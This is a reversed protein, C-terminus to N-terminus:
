SDLDLFSSPFSAVKTSKQVTLGERLYTVRCKILLPKDQPRTPSGAAVAAAAGGPSSSVRLRQLVPPGGPLVDTASPPELQLQLYKPVAAEFRFQQLVTSSASAAFEATVECVGLGARRCKLLINLGEEDLVQVAAVGDPGVSAAATGPSAARATAAAAAPSPPSIAATLALPASSGEGAATVASAVPTAAAGTAASPSLPRLSSELLSPLPEGSSMSAPPSLTAPAAATAATTPLPNALDILGSFPDAAPTPAGATAAAPSAAASQQEAAKHNAESSSVSAGALLDALLDLGGASSSSSTNAAVPLPSSKSAPPSTSLGLLDDLELLQAGTTGNATRQQPATSVGPFSTEAAATAAAAEPEPPLDALDFYVEGIPREQQQVQQQQQQLPMRSFLAALDEPSWDPSQLLTVFETSRQQVELNSSTNFSQLLQLLRGRQEPLKVALKAMCTMLSEAVGSSGNAAAAAAAAGAAGAANNTGSQKGGRLAHCIQELTDVVDAATLALAAAAPDQQQHQQQQKSLLHSKDTATLMEGFEGVCYLATKALVPNSASGERLCFFLKHVAYSQLEPTKFVLLLLQNGTSDSLYNGALCLLKLTGDFQWRRTPAHAETAAALRSAAFPKLDKESILLFSLLERGLTCINEVSLLAILVELARRRISSDGDKLCELLTERHKMVAAADKHLLQQLTDLAVYKLNPERSSLFRGLINVALVRLGQDAELAVITRVCEYLVCNGANKTGDTNTAVHALLETLGASAASDGQALLAVARLLRAQLLPDVIGAIDYEATQPHTASSCARLAKALPQLLQQSAPAAAADQQQTDFMAFLLGCAGLLVGHSRDNCLAPLAHLLSAAEAGLRRLAKAAALAAKKRIFPNSCSLLADVEPLLARSVERPCGNALASLALSNIYQNTHQLDQKLSNTSLMAVESSDDLLLTLGLYGIRKEAYRM